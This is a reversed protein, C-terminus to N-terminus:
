WEATALPYAIKVDYPGSCGYTWDETFKIVRYDCMEVDCTTFWGADKYMEGLTKHWVLSWRSVKKSKYEAILLDFFRMDPLDPFHVGNPLVLTHAPLEVDPYPYVSTFEEPLWMDSWLEKFYWTCYEYEEELSEPDLWYIAGEKTSVILLNKYKKDEKEFESYSYILSVGTPKDPYIQFKKLPVPQKLSVKLVNGHHTDVIITTNDPLRIADQPGDLGKSYWWLVEGISNIEIIRNNGTDAILMNGEPTINVDYPKSLKDKKGDPWTFDSFEWILEKKDDSTVRIIRNNGTDAILTTGDWLREADRPANLKTYQWVIEKKDRDIEIVRNATTDTILYHRMETPAKEYATWLKKPKEKKKSVVIKEEKLTFGPGLKIDEERFELEEPRKIVEERPFRLSLGVKYFPGGPDFPIPDGDAMMTDPLKIKPALRYGGQISLGFPGLPFLCFEGQVLLGSASGKASKIVLDRLEIDKNSSLEIEQYMLGIGLSLLHRKSESITSMFSLNGGITSISQSISTGGYIEGSVESEPMSEVGLGIALKPSIKYELGISLTPQEKFEEITGRTLTNLNRIAENLDDLNLYPRVISVSMLGKSEREKPQIKKEPESGAYSSCVGLSVLIVLIMM